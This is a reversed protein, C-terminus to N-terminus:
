QWSKQKWDCKMKAGKEGVLKYRMKRHIKCTNAQQWNHKERNGEIRKPATAAAHSQCLRWYQLEVAKKQKNKTKNDDDNTQKRLTKEKNKSKNRRKANTYIIM